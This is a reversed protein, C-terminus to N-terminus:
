IHLLNLSGEYLIEIGSHNSKFNFDFVVRRLAVSIEIGSHNSKFYAIDGDIKISM